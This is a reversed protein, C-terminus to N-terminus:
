CITPVNLMYTHLINILFKEPYFISMKHMEILENAYFRTYRDKARDLIDTFLSFVYLMIHLPYM